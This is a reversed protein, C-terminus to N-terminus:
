KKFCKNKAKISMKKIANQYSNKWITLARKNATEVIKKNNSVQIFNFKLEDFYDWHITYEFKM